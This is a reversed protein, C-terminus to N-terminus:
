QIPKNASLENNLKRAKYMFLYSDTNNVIQITNLSNFISKLWYETKDSRCCLDKIFM